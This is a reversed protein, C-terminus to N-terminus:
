FCAACPLNSISEILFLFLVISNHLLDIIKRESGHILCQGLLRDLIMFIQQFQNLVSSCNSVKCNRIPIMGQILSQSVIIIYSLFTAHIAEVLFLQRTLIFLFLFTFFIVRVRKVKKKDLHNLHVIEHRDYHVWVELISSFKNM